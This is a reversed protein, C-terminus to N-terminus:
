RDARRKAGRSRGRLLGLLLVGSGVLFALVGAGAAVFAVTISRPLADDYVVVRAERVRAIGVRDLGLDVDWTLPGDASALYPGVLREAVLEAPGIGIPRRQHPGTSHGYLVTPPESPNLWGIVKASELSAVLPYQAHVVLAGDSEALGAREFVIQLALTYRTGSKAAFARHLPIGPALDHVAVAHRGSYSFLSGCGSSAGVVASVLGLVVLVLGVRRRM